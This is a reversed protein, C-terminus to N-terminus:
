GIWYWTFIIDNLGFWSVRGAALCESSRNTQSHENSAIPGNEWRIYTNATRTHIVENPFEIVNMRIETHHRMIPLLKRSSSSLDTSSHNLTAASVILVLDIKPKLFNAYIFIWWFSSCNRTFIIWLKAGFIGWKKRPFNFCNWKMSLICHLNLTSWIHFLNSPFFVSRGGHGSLLNCHIFPGDVSDTRWIVGVYNRLKNRGFGFGIRSWSCSVFSLRNEPCSPRKALIMIEWKNQYIHIKNKNWFRRVFQFSLFARWCEVDYRYTTHACSRWIRVVSVIAININRKESM